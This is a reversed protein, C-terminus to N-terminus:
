RLPRRLMDAFSLLVESKQLAADVVSVAKRHEEDAADFLKPHAVILVADGGLQHAVTPESYSSPPTPYRNSLYTMWGVPPTGDSRMAVPENPHHAVGAYGFDPRVSSAAARMIREVISTRVGESGAHRQVTIELRNPVFFADMGDPLTIGCTMQVEIDPNTEAGVFFFPQYSVHEQEGTRWRVEHMELAQAVQDKNSLAEIERGTRDSFQWAGLEADIGRIATLLMYLQRAMKEKSDDRSAWYFKILIPDSM